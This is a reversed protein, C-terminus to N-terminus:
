HDRSDDRASRRFREGLEVDIISSPLVATYAVFVGTGGLVARTNGVMFSHHSRIRRLM